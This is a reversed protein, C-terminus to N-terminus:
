TGLRRRAADLNQASLDRLVAHGLMTVDPSVDGGREAVNVVQLLERDEALAWRLVDFALDAHSAEERAIRALVAAEDPVRTEDAEAGAIAASLGENVCGDLWAERALRRLALPRPLRARRRFPPPVARVEAAGHLMALRVADETHGLEERAAGRARSVLEAPAGLEALELALQLFAPVSACEEAARKSWLEARPNRAEFAAGRRVRAAQRQGGDDRYARGVECMGPEGFFPLYRAGAGASLQPPLWAQRFYLDFIISEVTLGTHPVVWLRGDQVLLRGGLEGDLALYPRTIDGGGHAALTAQFQSLQVMGLRVLPGFGYRMSHDGCDDHHETWRTAFADIGWEFGGPEGFSYGLFVGAGAVQFPEEARAPSACVLPSLGALM